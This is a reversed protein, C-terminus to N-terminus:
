ALLPWARAMATSPLWCYQDLSPFLPSSHHFCARPAWRQWCCTRPLLLMLTYTGLFLMVNHWVGAAAIRLRHMPEAQELGDTDLEV